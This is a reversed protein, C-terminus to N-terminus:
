GVVKPNWKAECKYGNRVFGFVDPHPMHKGQSSGQNNGGGKQAKHQKGTRYKLKLRIEM